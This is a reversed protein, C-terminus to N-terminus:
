RRSRVVRLTTAGTSGRDPIGHVERHGHLSRAGAEPAARIRAGSGAVRHPVGEDLRQPARQDEGERERGPDRRGPGHHPRPRGAHGSKTPGDRRDRVRAPERHDPRHGALARPRRRRRVQGDAHAHRPGPACRSGLRFNAWVKRVRVNRSHRPGCPCWTPQQSQPGTFRTFPLRTRPPSGPRTARCGRRRRWEQVLRPGLTPSQRSTVTRRLDRVGCAGRGAWEAGGRGGRRATSTRRLRSGQSAAVCM